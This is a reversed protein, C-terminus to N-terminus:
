ESSSLCLLFITVESFVGKDDEHQQHWFFSRVPLALRVIGSLRDSVPPKLSITDNHSPHQNMIVFFMHTSSLKTFPDMSRKNAKKQLLCGCESVTAMKLFTQCSM